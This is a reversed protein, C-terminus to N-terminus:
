KIKNGCGPCYNSADADDKPHVEDDAWEKGCECTNFTYFCDGNYREGHVKVEKVVRLVGSDIFLEYAGRVTSAGIYYSHLPDNPKAPGQGMAAQRLFENFMGSLDDESLLPERKTQENMLYRMWGRVDEHYRTVGEEVGSLDQFGGGIYVSPIATPESALFVMVRDGINPLREQPTYVELAITRM